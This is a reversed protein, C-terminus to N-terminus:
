SRASTWTPHSSSPLHSRASRDGDATNLRDIRRAGLLVKAGRQALLIATAAGIGISAGTIAIVKGRIGADGNEM